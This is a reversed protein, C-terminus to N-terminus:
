SFSTREQVEGENDIQEDLKKILEEIKIEGTDTIGEPSYELYLKYLLKYKESTFEEKDWLNEYQDPDKTMDYLEGYTQKYYYVLKYRDSVIMKQYFGKQIPRNEIVVHSRVQEPSVLKDYPAPVVHPPHPDQFSIWMFFPKNNRNKHHDDIFMNAKESVFVSPHYELPLNWTGTQNNFYKKLDTETLGKDKLWVGYHERCSLQESSHRNLMRVHQFGFHPGDFNRWFNEDLINPVSEFEGKTSVQRFHMKGVAYTEYGNEVLVDTVKHSDYPLATGISYAGHTSGYQGTLISARAPTCTPHPTYAREFVIGDDALSNLAPTNILTNGYAGISGKRQQDSTILIVNPNKLSLGNTKALKSKCSVLSL